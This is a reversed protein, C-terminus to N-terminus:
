LRDGILMLAVAFGNDRLYDEDVKIEKLLVVVAKVQPMTYFQEMDIKKDKTPISKLGSLIDLLMKVKAKKNM